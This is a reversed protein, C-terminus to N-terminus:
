IRRMHGKFELESVDVGGGGRATGTVASTTMAFTLVAHAAADSMEDLASGSLNDITDCAQHYCPDYAIGATGGYIEAQEETKIGEAGTFLGGAPIGVAIFPGYDSRGDFATPETELGQSAFYDLFVEEVQGSGVPGATETDSGNGDYVFRVYNPSGVMDFNLNVAINKRERKTLQSVYLESGVLGSEEAGWFAFRITNTPEIGLEAIEEAIEILTSVGSGNDNIGPGETVSDLHAGVLVVRDDRGTPTEAFINETTRPETFTSTVMHVTVPTGAVWAEYLDEGLAFTTGTVPVTVGPGGLTGALLEARGLDEQGENFIIVGVAGAAEANMAKVIFDCTGRQVLAINGAEFDAFDEPECGSNSTSAADGPPIVIDNTPQVVATVDGSGSYDMTVFDEGWVYATPIPSVQELIPTTLEEFFDWVFEQRTVIYGAAEMREVVYDASADYGPLGSARTGGNADAIQQFAIQHEMIGEVTVAARLESSDVPIAGSAPSVFLTAVVLALLAAGPVSRKM